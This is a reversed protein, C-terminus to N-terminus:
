LDKSKVTRKQKPKVDVHDVPKHKSDIVRFGEKNLKQKEEKTIPHDKYIIKM